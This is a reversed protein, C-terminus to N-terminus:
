QGAILEIGDRWESDIFSELTRKGVPQVLSQDNPFPANMPSIFRAIARSFSSRSFDSRNADVSTIAAEIMEAIRNALSGSM